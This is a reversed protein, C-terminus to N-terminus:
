LGEEDEWADEDLTEELELMEIPVLDPQDGSMHLPVFVTEGGPDRRPPGIITAGPYGSGTVKKGISQQFLLIKKKLDEDEKLVKSIEEKILKRLHTKTLKM